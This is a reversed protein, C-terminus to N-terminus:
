SYTVGVQAANTEKQDELFKEQQRNFDGLITNEEVTKKLMQAGSTFAESANAASSTVSPHYDFFAHVSIGCLSSWFSLFCTRGRSVFQGKIADEKWCKKKWKIFTM